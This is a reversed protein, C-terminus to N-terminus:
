KETDAGEGLLRNVIEHMEDMEIPKMLCADAGLQEAIKPAEPYASVVVVKINQLEPTSRIFGLVLDGSAIPMNIDLIVLDPQAKLQQLGEVGQTAIEIHHGKQELMLKFLNRVEEQDEVILIHAM